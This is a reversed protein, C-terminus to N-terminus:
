AGGKLLAKIEPTGHVVCIKDYATEDDRDKLGRDAGAQLLIEICERQSYIAGLMLATQGDKNVANVNAGSDILSQLIELHGFVVSEGLANRHETTGFYEMDVGAIIQRQVDQADGSRVALILQTNGDRDIAKPNQSAEAQFSRNEEDIEELQALWIEFFEPISDAVFESLEAIIRRNVEADRHDSLQEDWCIEHSVLYVKGDLIDVAFADGSVATGFCIFGSSVINCGPVYGQNTAVLDPHGCLRCFDQSSFSESHIPVNPIHQFYSAVTLHIRKDDVNLQSLDFPSLSEIEVECQSAIKLVIGPDLMILTFVM